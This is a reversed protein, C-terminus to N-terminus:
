PGTGIANLRRSEFQDWRLTGGAGGKVSLAGLRVFDARARSNDLGELVAVSVGDIWLEFRGDLADPGSAARLDLEVAHPADSITFFDTDLQANDDQRTRAGLSFEGRVRRLVVAAVRRSPGETFVIFTRTRRHGEAEGPDFGNPDILFRARYRREDSPTEDQVWLAGVDDVVGRLGVSTAGLAADAAAALDSGGTSAASWASLTGSEFDDRFILDPAFRQGRIGGNSSSTDSWVIVFTGDAATAVFPNSQQNGNADVRFEPGTPTGTPDLRRGFVRLGGAYEGYWVVVFNGQADAAVRTRGGQGGTTYTNVRFEGGAPAGSADFRRAYVDARSEWVVLFGGDPQVAVAPYWEFGTTYTNVAIEPGLRAGTADFRQVFVEEDASAADPRFYTVVFDGAAGVAVEPYDHHVSTNSSVPFDLGGPIGADDYHRGAVDLGSGFQRYSMWVAALSGDPRAAMSVHSQYSATYSNVLFEAGPAEGASGYRRGYIGSGSGDQGESHWMVTFGTGTSVVRPYAQDGPTYTNVQFADGDAEGEAGFRRAWVGLHSFPVDFPDGQSQWVVVFDGGSHVAAAPATQRATTFSNVQFSPGLPVEALVPACSLALFLGLRWGAKGV